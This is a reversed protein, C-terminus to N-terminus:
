STRRSTLYTVRGERVKGDGGKTKGSKGGAHGPYRYGGYVWQHWDDRPADEQRDIVDDTDPENVIATWSRLALDEIYDHCKICLTILNVPENAGGEARPMIHHITLRRKRGCRQCSFNDRYLIEDRLEESLLRADYHPRYVQPRWDDRHQSMAFRGKRTIGDNDLRAAPRVCLLPAKGVLREQSTVASLLLFAGCETRRSLRIIARDQYLDFTIM